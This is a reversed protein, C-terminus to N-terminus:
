PRRGPRAGPADRGRRVDVGVEPDLRRAFGVAGGVALRRAEVLVADGVVGHGAGGLGALQERRVQDLERLVGVRRESSLAAARWLSGRRPALSSLRREASERKRSLALRERERRRTLGGRRAAGSRARTTTTRPATSGSARWWCTRARRSSRRRRDGPQHRRRGPHRRGARPTRDRRAAGPDQAGGRRHVETGLLGPQVTMLLVMDLDALVPLRRRAAIDPSIAVAAKKGLARIHAVTTACIPCRRSTCTSSIPARAARLGGPLARARRDDPASDLPMRTSKRIAKVVASGITINPVFQGDMVDVHIMDAGAAEVAKVEEGLRSFDAALISPAIRLPRPM